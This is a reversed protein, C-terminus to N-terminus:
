IDQLDDSKFQHILAPPTIAPAAPIAAILTIFDKSGDQGLEILRKSKMAKTSVVRKSNKSLGILLGNKGFTYINCPEINYKMIKEELQAQLLVEVDFDFIYLNRLQKLHIM